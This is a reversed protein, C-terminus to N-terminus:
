GGACSNTISVPGVWTAEGGDDLVTQDLAWIQGTTNCPFAPDAFAGSAYYSWYACSEGAPCLWEATATTTGSWSGDNLVGVFITHGAPFPGVDFVVDEFGNPPIFADVFAPAPPGACILGARCISAAPKSASEVAPKAESEITPVEKAQPVETTEPDGPQVACGNSGLTLLGLVAPLVIINSITTM